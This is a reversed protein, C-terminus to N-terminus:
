STSEAEMHDAIRVPILAGPRRKNVRDKILVIDESSVDVIGGDCIRLALRVRKTKGDLTDNEDGSVQSVLADSVVAAMTMPEMSQKRMLEALQASAEPNLQGFEQLAAALGHDTGGALVPSGNLHRILASFDRKM